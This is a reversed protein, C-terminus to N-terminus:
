LATRTSLISEHFKIMLLTLYSHNIYEDIITRMMLSVPQLFSFLKTCIQKTGEISRNVNWCTTVSTNINAVYPSLVCVLTSEMKWNRQLYKLDIKVVKM